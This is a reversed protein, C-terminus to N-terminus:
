WTFKFISATSRSSDPRQSEATKFPDPVTTWDTYINGGLYFRPSVQVTKSEPQLDDTEPTWLTYTHQPPTPGVRDNAPIYELKGDGDIDARIWDVHLLRHYTRDLIMGRLQGNFGGIIAAADPRSRNVAFFLQRRLLPFPAIQLRERSESPYNSIIYEVVLDDLLAYDVANHLLQTLSDESGRSRVFTPGAQDIDGYAYGEVLALRKGKLASFQAASVDAGKRGVLVLRNELYPQSYLLAQERGPGTWVAASGDFSGSLLTQTFMAPDVISTASSVGIRGLATEVLDLAFRPQGSANTFPSWVTSVLRLETKQASLSFTAGIIAFSVVVWTRVRIM